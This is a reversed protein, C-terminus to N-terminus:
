LARRQRPRRPAVPALGCAEDVCTTTTDSDNESRPEIGRAEVSLLLNPLNHLITSTPSPQMPAVEVTRGWGGSDGWGAKLRYGEDSQDGGAGRASSPRRRSPRDARPVPLLVRLEHGCPSRFLTTYPFLTSRPPRRIMLFFIFATSFSITM